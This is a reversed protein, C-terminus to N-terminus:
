WRYSYKQIQRISIEDQNDEYFRLDKYILDDILINFYNSIKTLDEITIGRFNSEWQSISVRSKNVVNALEIQTIGKKIRLYKINSSIYNM